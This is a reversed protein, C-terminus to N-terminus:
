LRKLLELANEKSKIFVDLKKIQDEVPMATFLFERGELKKSELGEELWQKQESFWILNGELIVKLKEKDEM